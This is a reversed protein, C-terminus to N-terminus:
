AVGLGKECEPSHLIQVAGGGVLQDFKSSHGMLHSVSLHAYRQVMRSQKWGGLEQLVDLGVGGQRMISAWTHRLDHFRFDEIGAKKCAAAWTKSPVGNIRELDSRVFVYEDDKGVWPRVAEIAMNNLPITLPSGNKMKIGRLKVVRSGFDVEGWRLGICNGQRLGTAVAFKAVSAYPEPLAQLLRRLEAPTLFRMREGMEPLLKFLPPASDMWRYERYAANVVARLFCLKRNVTAPSVVSDKRQCKRSAEADRISKVADPTVEDLFTIGNATFSDSWFEAYRRDDAASRKHGHESLWRKVAESWTRRPKDGAITIRWLEARRRDHFERAQREDSTYCTKRETKGDITISYWWTNGRRYVPM